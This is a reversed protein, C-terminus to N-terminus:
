SHTDRERPHCKAHTAKLDTITLKAYHKLTDLSEHGLLEKVHYMNAGSRLLESTCSRRFTHPTVRMGIRAREAYAALRRAVLHHKIRRGDPGLFLAPERRDGEVSSPVPRQLFPRVAKLYSELYRLATRGIPVVRQKNGKGNVMMTANKLDLNEVNLGMLEGVRIGSSYLLEFMARDRYAGPTGAGIANLLKRVQAHTMVGAPLLKPEKVYDVAELLSRQVYGHRVLYRLFGRLSEIQKNISRPKLPLGKTTRHRALRRTWGDLHHKLLREVTHVHYGALWNIFATLHYFHARRTLVSFNLAAEHELFRELLAQLTKPGSM